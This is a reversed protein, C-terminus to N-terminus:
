VYRGRRVRYNAAILGVFLWGALTLLSMIRVFPSPTFTLRGSGAQEGPFVSAWGFASSAPSSAGDIQLRWPSSADEAILIDGPPVLGTWAGISPKQELVPASGSLDASPVRNDDQGAWATNGEPLVSRIPAWVSNEYVLVANDTDVTRLDLQDALMAEVDPPPPVPRGAANSPGTRLPVVVYRVGYPALQQGLQVTNGARASRVADFLLEQGRGGADTASPSKPTASDVAVAAALDDSIRRAGGPMVDGQGLWLVRFSGEARKEPMWSLASTNSTEPLQWSGNGAKYVLPIVSVVVGALAFLPILQRWGFRFDRLDTQFAIAGVGVNLALAAAALSLYVHPDPVIPGLLGHAGMWTVLTLCLTILWLRLSLQWRWSKGILIAPLAGLVLGFTLWSWATSQGHM